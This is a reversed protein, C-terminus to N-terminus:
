PLMASRRLRRHGRLWGGYTRAALARSEIRREPLSLSSMMPKLGLAEAVEQAAMAGTLAGGEMYGQADLSTHEGCFHLNGTAGGEIGAFATYQGPRYASYSGKHTPVTPWHMRAVRGNSAAKSGPYVQDIQDLFLSLQSEPSGRGIDVGRVGGTFNTLIGSAGPQLRSTEWTAQYALDSFSEGNSGSGSRWPKSSFGAMLKANTGYGQERIARLKLAPLEAGALDCDRLVSFPLALVVHEAVVQYAGGGRSFSLTYRGDPNLRVATLRSDLQIQSPNLGEALKTIFTDNGSKTHFREDSDGFLELMTTDTSILFLLNLASQEDTELGYEINYAVELLTRVPGAAGVSDLWARISLNDLLEGGNPKAQTVGLEPDTLTNIAADIEAAIPAFGTLLEQESLEVGGIHAVLDTLNPDDDDYDYLDIAFHTALDRMTMHGTDILEGGLECHQGDPFTSRDTFMRGGIRKGAEFVTALVGYHQKLKWACHLGAIGAGIVAVRPTGKIPGCAPLVSAAAVAAGSVQLFQRRTLASRRKQRQREAYEATPIGEREAGRLTRYARLLRSM